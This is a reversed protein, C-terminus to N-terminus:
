EKKLLDLYSKYAFMRGRTKGTIEKLIGARILRASLDNATPFTVEMMRAVDKVSVIPRDFLRDHLAAAKKSRRCMENIGAKDKVQLALIKHSMEMAEIAVFIIGNLFFKIWSEFDGKDRIATLRDYYEMRNQKFYHSLYLLPKKLIDKYCLFFTILLRGIRGNGDLFPHITEFQAHMLACEILLPYRLKSHMYKELVGVAQMMEHPPPPIFKANELTCGAPGIWNQSKRFEGPTKEAGRVGKMLEAHIEKILRLSLPLERIRDLGYNMARVYNIVEAVDNALTKPRDESEYEIVDELSAETGEIQSSLVAEKRVYMAVFLNPNPLAESVGSLRGIASDAKSLLAIMEPDIELPPNPPLPNPIFAKYGNQQTILVGARNKDM